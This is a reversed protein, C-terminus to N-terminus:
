VYVVIVVCVSYCVGEAYYMVHSFELVLVVRASRYLLQFTMCVVLSFAVDFSLIVCAVCSSVLVSM